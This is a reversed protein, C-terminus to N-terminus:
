GCVIVGESDFLYRDALDGAVVYVYEPDDAVHWLQEDGRRLGSDVAAEPLDGTRLTRNRPRGDVYSLLNVPDFHYTRDEFVLYDVLEWGCEAPGAHSQVRAPSAACGDATTWRDGVAPASEVPPCAADGGSDDACSSAVLVFALVLPARTM